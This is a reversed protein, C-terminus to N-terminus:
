FNGDLIDLWNKRLIENAINTLSRKIVDWDDRAIATENLEDREFEDKADKIFLGSIMGFQKQTVTELKSLVNRLRNETLYCSFAAHLKEQEETLVVAARPTKGAKNKKEKFKDNKVKLIARSGNHLRKENRLQKVVFGEAVNEGDVDAPTHFSRFLPDIRLLEDLTGRAIEHTTKVKAFECAELVVDWDLFKGTEPLLIDYAWFDKDGYNVEKQVGKGALEGYVIITEGVNIIGRAWLWNSIAEMKATHAEVVSTCGYFDYDGMVNAGITSTRKAPTVTFEAGDQAENPKFEVIFSFNAGHIKELAVWERVGLMDCKDVFAQRYSNELSTYKVFSM